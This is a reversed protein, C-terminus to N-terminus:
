IKKILNKSILLCEQDIKGNILDQRFRRQFAITLKKVNKFKFINKRKLYGIKSLNKIFENKEKDNINLKRKKKLNKFNLDHWFGIKKKSLYKWPFKEGPDKKRNPAIDSHGLINNPKINYKKILYKSLNVISKIQKTSFNKYNHSHGPNSIEIGISYKNLSKYGKWFSIGAHWAIYPEPVMLVIEGNNKILYHSSVESQIEKLRKIADVELKMGTYHFVLFKIQRNDRKKSNFNPSYNLTKKILM